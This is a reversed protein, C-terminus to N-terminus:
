LDKRSPKARMELSNEGTNDIVQSKSSKKKDRQRKTSKKKDEM